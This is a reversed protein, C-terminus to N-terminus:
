NIWDSLPSLQLMLSCDRQIFNVDASSNCLVSSLVCLNLVTIYTISAPTRAKVRKIRIDLIIHLLHYFSVKFCLWVFQKVRSCPVRWQREELVNQKGFYNLWINAKFLRQEVMSSIRNTDKLGPRITACVCLCFGLINSLHHIHLWENYVTEM